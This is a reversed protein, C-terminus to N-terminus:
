ASAEMLLAPAPEGPKYERAWVRGNYSVYAIAGVNSEVVSGGSFGASTLGTADRYAQVKRSADALDACEVSRRATLYVRKV